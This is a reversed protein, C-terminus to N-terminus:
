FSGGVSVLRCNSYEHVCHTIPQMRYAAGHMYTQISFVMGRKLFSWADKNLLLLYHNSSIAQTLMFQTFTCQYCLM